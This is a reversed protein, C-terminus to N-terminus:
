DSAFLADVDVQTAFGVDGELKPGHLPGNHDRAAMAAATHLRFADIGGWAETMRAVRNAVFDLTAAVKSIRQGTLDQFNCAEFISIVHDLIDQALAQEQKGKLCASLTNAADEIAEAANIIKQTAREAEEAIAELERSARAPGGDLPGVQLAAIELKTADIADDLACSELAQHARNTVPTDGHREASTSRREILDRLAQLEGLIERHPLGTDSEDASRGAPSKTPYMQEIRFIKRQSPM